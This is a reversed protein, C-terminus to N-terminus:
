LLPQLPRLVQEGLRHLLTRDDWEAVTLERCNTLDQDFVTEMVEAQATAVVELNVEYNGRMSLRDINATGVTTWWGDATATKAHVMADQYLFIRVGGELLATFYSRAVIDAVIHNSKQPIIVHVTVGRQAAGLLGELIHQDPIFYAQTILLRDTARDIAELYINRVPYVMRSPENRAARIPYDWRPAGGNPLQPRTAGTHRNWFDVFTNSLEWVTDGQVRLHTDRWQTAYLDGINYGGVFGVKGDVVLMKRHDRGTRRIDFMWGGRWTPFQLVNISVPFTKFSGPVVLNALGDFVVYVEVGRHAAEIVADKFLQGTEDGKWIYTALYVHDQAEAIAELMADYLHQGYTYTTLTNESVTAAQPAAEPAAHVDTTRRKRLADVGSVAVGALVPVAIAAAAVRALSRPVTTALVGSTRQARTLWSRSAM